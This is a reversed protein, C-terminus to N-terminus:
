LLLPAPPFVFSRIVGYSFKVPEAGHVEAAVYGKAVGELLSPLVIVVFDLDHPPHNWLRM